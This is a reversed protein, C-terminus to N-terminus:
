THKTQQRLAHEGAQKFSNFNKVIGRGRCFDPSIYEMDLFKAKLKLLLLPKTLLYIHLIQKSLPVTINKKNSADHNGLLPLNSFYVCM